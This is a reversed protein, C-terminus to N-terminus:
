SEDELVEIPSDRLLLSGLADELIAWAEEVDLWGTHSVALPRSDEVVIYGPTNPDLRFSQTYGEGTLPTAHVRIM